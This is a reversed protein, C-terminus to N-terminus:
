KPVLRGACEIVFYALYVTIGDDPIRLELDRADVLFQVKPIFSDLTAKALVLKVSDKQYGGGAVNAFIDGPGGIVLAKGEYSNNSNQPDTITVTEGLEEVIQAIAASVESQISM